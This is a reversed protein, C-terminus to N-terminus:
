YMGVYQNSDVTESQWTGGANTAYLLTYNDQHQYCLHVTGAGDVTFGYTDPYVIESSLDVPASVWQGSQNTVLALNKETLDAYVIYLKGADDAAMEPYAAFRLIEEADVAKDESVTYLTLTRAKVAAIYAQGDEGFVLSTGNTGPWGGEIKEIMVGDTDDDGTDDDGTDDDGTDDDGTDDDGTDDDATDDDATDDDDGHNDDDDDDCSCGAVVTALAFLVIIISLFYLHAKMVGERLVNAGRNCGNM